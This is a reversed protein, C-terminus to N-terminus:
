DLGRREVRSRRCISTFRGDSKFKAVEGEGAVRRERREGVPLLQWGSGSIRMSPITGEICAMETGDAPSPANACGKVPSIIAV